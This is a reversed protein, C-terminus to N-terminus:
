RNPRFRVSSSRRLASTMRSRLPHASCVSGRERTDRNAVGKEDDDLSSIERLVGLADDLAGAIHQGGLFDVAPWGDGEFWFVVAPELVMVTGDATRHERAMVNVMREDAPEPFAYHYRVDSGDHDILTYEHGSGFVCWSPCPAIEPHEALTDVTQVGKKAAGRFLDLDSVDPTNTSETSARLTNAPDALRGRVVPLAAEVAERLGLWTPVAELDAILGKVMQEAIYRGALALEDVTLESISM